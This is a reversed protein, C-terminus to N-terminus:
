SLNGRERTGENEEPSGPEPVGEWGGLGVGRVKGILSEADESYPTLEFYPTCTCCLWLAM